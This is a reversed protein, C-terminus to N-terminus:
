RRVGLGDIDLRRRNGVNVIKITRTKKKRWSKSFVVKRFRTRKSYTNITKVYKGNIYIRAKSRTRAKTSILQVARGSFRYAIMDGAATSYRITSRYARSRRNKSTRKFGARARILQGNDYPVITRKAKSYRGVNGANDRARVRFYYTKGARGKFNSARKTVNARWNRWGGGSVKYQVDYSVIGSSPLPDFASWSVKFRTTKSVDTSLRPARITAVPAKTDLNAPPLPPPPPPPPPSPVTPVAVATYIR